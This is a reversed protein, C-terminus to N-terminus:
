QIVRFKQNVVLGNAYLHVIFMGSPLASTSFTEMNSKVPENLVLTGQIDYIRLYGGGANKVVIQDSLLIADDNVIYPTLSSIKHNLNLGVLVPDHDSSRFMTVDYSKDYTYDDLEDSNIHYGLMGTVQPLMTSNCLAHDLYGVEGHYSYSYSSDAHFYRHLDTMGGQTLVTIPDEKGYANLDGMILIDPDNYYTRNSEYSSLVSQAERVRTGNFAGQGDGKDADDGSASAGGSKAKFHNISFIFTEQTSLQKFAQLYKRRSVGTSNYYYKGMPQVVDSCYVYGSKTYSGNVSSGDNIYTFNRGTNKTLDDAIEKIAGQGQQVEVLGYIDANIKALATSVKQRQREHESADYPGYGTGFDQVLYYELNMGCVLLTHTGNNDIQSMDPGKELDSRKNGVWDCSVLSLSNTSSVKVVLNCLREGMRHNGSIGTLRVNGSRNLNLLSNYEVSLPTAQNTPVFIRRPSVYYSGNYNNCLYWPASFQITKGVYESLNDAIWTEPNSITVVQVAGEAAWMVSQMLCMCVSVCVVKLINKM